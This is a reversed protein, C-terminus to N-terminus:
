QKIYTGSCGLGSFDLENGDLEGSLTFGFVTYEFSCGDLEIEDTDLLITSSNSGASITFQEELSVNEDTCNVSSEDLTYTGIWDSQACDDDSSCSFALSLAFFLTLLKLSKM